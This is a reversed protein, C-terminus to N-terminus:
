DVKPYKFLTKYKRSKNLTQQVIETDLLEKIMAIREFREFRQTGPHKLKVIRPKM